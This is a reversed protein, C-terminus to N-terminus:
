VGYDGGGNIIIETNNATDSNEIEQKLKNVETQKKIEDITIGFVGMERADKTAKTLSAVASLHMKDDALLRIWQDVLANRITDQLSEWSRDQKKEEEKIRKEVRKKHAKQRREDWKGARAHDYLTGYPVGYSRALERLTINSSLYDSEIQEYPIIIKKKKRREAM